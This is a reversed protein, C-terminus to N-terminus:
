GPARRELREHFGRLQLERALGNHPERRRGPQRDRQHHHDPRRLIRHIHQGIRPESRVRHQIRRWHEDRQFLEVSGAGTVDLSGGVMNFPVTFEPTGSATFTGMNNFASNDGPGAENYSGNTEATFTGFNNFVTDDSVAINSGSAPGNWTVTQGAPNNITRGAFNLGQVDRTSCCGGNANLAGSGSLTGSTLTM